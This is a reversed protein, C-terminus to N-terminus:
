TWLIKMVFEPHCTIKLKLRSRDNVNNNNNNWYYCGNNVQWRSNKTFNNCIKQPLVIAARPIKEPHEKFLM